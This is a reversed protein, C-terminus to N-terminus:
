SAQDDQDSGDLEKEHPEEKLADMLAHMNINPKYTGNLLAIKTQLDCKIADIAKPFFDSLKHKKAM